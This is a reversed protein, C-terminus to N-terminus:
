FRIFTRKFCGRIEWTPKQSLYTIRDSFSCVLYQIDLTLYFNMLNLVCLSFKHWAKNNFDQHSGVCPDGFHCINWGLAGALSSVFDLNEIMFSFCKHFRKKIEMHWKCLLIKKETLNPVFCNPWFNGNEALKKGFRKAGFKASIFINNM